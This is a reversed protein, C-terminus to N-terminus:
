DEDEEGWRWRPREGKIWCITVLAAIMAALYPFFLVLCWETRTLAFIGVFFATFWIVFTLWGQWTSPHGWGWGYRKARFWAKGAADAHDYGLPTRDTWVIM